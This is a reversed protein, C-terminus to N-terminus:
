TSHHPIRQNPFREQYLRQAMRGNGDAADYSLLIDTMENWTDAAMATSFDSM